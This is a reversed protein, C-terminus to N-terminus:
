DPFLAISEPVCHPRLAAQDRRQRPECLPERVRHKLRTEEGFRRVRRRERWETVDQVYSLRTSGSRQGGKRLDTRAIRRSGLTVDVGNALDELIMGCSPHVAELAVVFQRKEEADRAADGTEHDLEQDGLGLNRRAP